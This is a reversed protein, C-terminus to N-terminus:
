FGDKCGYRALGARGDKVPLCVKGGDGLSGFYPGLGISSAYTCRAGQPCNWGTECPASCGQLLCPKNPSGAAPNAFSILCTQASCGGMAAFGASSSWKSAAFTDEALGCSALYDPLIPQAGSVCAQLGLHCTLTADTTTAGPPPSVPQCDADSSCRDGPFKPYEACFSAPDTYVSIQQPYPNCGQKCTYILKFQCSKRASCPIAEPIMDRVMGMSCSRGGFCDTHCGIENFPQADIADPVGRDSSADAGADGTGQALDAAADPAAFQRDAPSACATLLGLLICAASLFASARGGKRRWLQLGQRAALALGGLCSRPGRGRDCGKVPGEGDNRVAPQWDGNAMAAPSTGKATIDRAHAVEPRFVLACRSMVSEEKGIRVPARGDGLHSRWGRFRDDVAPRGVCPFVHHRKAM